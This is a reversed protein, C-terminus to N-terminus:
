KWVISPMSACYRRAVVPRASVTLRHDVASLGSDGTACLHRHDRLRHDRQLCGPPEHELREGMGNASRTALSNACPRRGRPSRIGRWLRVFFVASHSTALFFTTAVFTLPFILVFALGQVAEPSSLLAALLVGVWIMAFLILLMLLYGGVADVFSSHIRWGIALGTVSM